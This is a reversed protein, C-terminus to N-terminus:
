FEEELKFLIQRIQWDLDSEQHCNDIVFNALAMKKDLPMQANIKKLATPFDVKDRQMVRLIQTNSDVYVVITYDCLENFDTEFLLPCEMFVIKCCSKNLEKKVQEKILPHLIQNLKERRKVDNFVLGGLKKRDIHGVSDLIETGFETLVMKYGLRNKNLISHGIKDCDIVKYGLNVIKKAVTSKGTGISGTIGIVKM